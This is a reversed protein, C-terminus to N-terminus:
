GNLPILEPQRCLWDCAAQLLMHFSKGNVEYRRDFPAYIGGALSSVVVGDSSVAM